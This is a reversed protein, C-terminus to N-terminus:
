RIVEDFVEMEFLSKELSWLENETKGDRISRAVADAM